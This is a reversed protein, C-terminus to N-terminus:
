KVGLSERLEAMEAGSLAKAGLGVLRRAAFRFQARGCIVMQDPPSPDCFITFGDAELALTLPAALRLEPLAADRDLGTLDFVPVGNESKIRSLRASPPLTLITPKGILVARCLRGSSLDLFLEVFTSGTADAEDTLFVLGSGGAGSPAEFTFPAYYDIVVSTAGEEGRKIDTLTPLIKGTM